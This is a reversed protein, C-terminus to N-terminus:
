HYRAAWLERRRRGPIRFNKREEEQERHPLAAGTSRLRMLGPCMCDQFELFVHGNSQLVETEGDRVFLACPPM